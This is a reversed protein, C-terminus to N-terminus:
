QSPNDNNCRKINNFYNPNLSKDFYHKRKIWIFGDDKSILSVDIPGGVTEKDTSVRRKLTTLNILSEAMSALETKPLSSVMTVIPDVFGNQRYDNLKSTIKEFYKKSKNSFDDKYQKKQDANLENILDIITKPYGKIIREMTDTILKNYQPDVGEMFTYVMEQQAFPLVISDTDEAIDVKRDQRYKLFNLPDGEVLFSRLHPFIEKDGYGTIVVGSMMPPYYENPFKSFLNVSLSFLKKRLQNTLYFSQFSKEIIRNIMDKYKIRFEKKFDKTINPVDSFKEWVDHHFLIISQRTKKIDSILYKNKKIIVDYLKKNIEKEITESFYSSLTVEVFTDRDYEINLNKEDSIFDIFSNACDELSNFSTSIKRRYEKVITEWPIGMFNSNNWIMLGIPQKYSLQFIKNASLYVKQEGITVASDAALAIAQKNMIAIEATM